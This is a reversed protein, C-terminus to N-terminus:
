FEDLKMFYQKTKHPRQMAVTLANQAPPAAIAEGMAPGAAIEHIMTELLATQEGRSENGGTPMM